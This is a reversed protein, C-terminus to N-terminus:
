SPTRKIPVFLTADGRKVLLLAGDDSEDLKERLQETNKVEYRDVELIVDGRRVGAEEAASGPQVATVVVGSAEELGLQNAIEPTVNQVRLGFASAGPVETARALQQTEPEELKGVVASVSKRDGKRMLVVEVKRDIPTLAVQRPLENWDSIRHGNFEVIVDGREIGAKDAPGDPMVKSVLAGKDDSLGFEAALEPSIRQIVVGLWGRTV